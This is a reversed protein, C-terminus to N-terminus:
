GRGCPPCPDPQQPVVQVAPVLTPNAAPAQVPDPAPAPPPCECVTCEPVTAQPSSCSASGLAMAFLIPMPIKM